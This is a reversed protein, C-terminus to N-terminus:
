VLRYRNLRNLAIKRGDDTLLHDPEIKIITFPVQRRRKDRPVWQQGVQVAPPVAPPPESPVTLAPAPSIDPNVEPPPTPPEFDTPVVEYLPGEDSAENVKRFAGKGLVRFVTNRIKLFSSRELAVVIRSAIDAETETDDYSLRIRPV